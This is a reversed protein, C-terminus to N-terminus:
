GTKEKEEPKPVMQQGLVEVCLAVCEDCIMFLPGAILQGVEKDSRACFGCHLLSKDTKKGTRPLFAGRKFQTGRM